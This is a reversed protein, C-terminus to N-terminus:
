RTTGCSSLSWPSQNVDTVHRATYCKTQRSGVGDRYSTADGAVVIIKELKTNGGARRYIETSTAIDNVAWSLELTKNDIASTTLGTPPVLPASPKKITACDELSYGSEEKANYAKVRYCYVNDVTGSQVVGADIYSTQKTTSKALVAFASGNLNREVVFGDENANSDAWTLNIPRPADLILAATAPTALLLLLATFTLRKM